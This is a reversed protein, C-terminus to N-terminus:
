IIFFGIWGCLAGLVIGAIVDRIFHVGILVRLPALVATIVAMVWGAPPWLWFAWVTLVSSSFMHRSPFSQGSLTKGNLSPMHYVEYPRPFDLARRLLSGGLFVVAPILLSRWLRDDRSLLMAAITLIYIAYVAASLLKNSWLLIHLAAPRARFWTQVAHYRTENM